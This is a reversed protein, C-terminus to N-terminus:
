QNSLITAPVVMRKGPLYPLDVGEAQRGFSKTVALAGDLPPLSPLVRQLLTFPVGDLVAPQQQLNGTQLRVDRDLDFRDVFVLEVPPRM